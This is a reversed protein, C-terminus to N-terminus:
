GQTFVYNAFSRENVSNWAYIRLRFQNWANYVKRFSPNGGALEELLERAAQYARDLIAESYPTLQTGGNILRQLAQNNVADYRSLMKAHAEFSATALAQQYETPLREWATQNVLLEYTTGPEHWGPYFYFQAAKHLGLREDEYPGVWEAADIDGRELAPAIEAPPLNQVEVGLRQMVQGGLGPIRMKLGELESPSSIKRKFWGGMQNGTSGAPFNITNFEAYLERILELGGGSHLWAQHQAPNLGFPVSTAFALAPNKATYYYGATHGCEVDGAQITELIELAPAIGGAPFPTISFNGNTMESVRDCILKANGYVVDLSEPWSTAMRWEVRPQNVQAISAGPFQTQRSCAALAGASATGAAFLGVLKRRKM